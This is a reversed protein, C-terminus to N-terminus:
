SITHGKILISKIAVPNSTSGNSFDGELRFNECKVKPYFIKSVTGTESITGTWLATNKNDRLTIDCRAGTELKEFTFKIEDVMGSREGLTPDFLLTKFSSNKTYGLFKQLKDSFATIPTGFPNALGGDGCAGLQFLRAGLKLDGGGFAFIENGSAWIIFDEYDTIQYFAPLSGYYNALDRVQMGDCYGLTCVGQSLNKQYIVYTIGNKVFLAGIKGDIKIRYDWSPSIGDWVFISGENRGSTNPKNGAFWFRNQNWVGSVLVIDSDKTDFADDTAVSGDWTAVVSGNLIALVGETGAVIMQHPKGSTLASGGQSTWWSDQWTSGLDFDGIDTDYAYKLHGAYLAVDEGSAGTITRVASVSTPTIEYVKTGGFGYTKNASVVHKLIGKILQDVTGSITTLGPGQKLCTPDTLDINTMKGLMNKNGYSPFSNKWYAPAFGGLFNNIEIKWKKAM